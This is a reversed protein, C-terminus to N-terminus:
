TRGTMIAEYDSPNLPLQPPFLRFQRLLGMLGATILSRPFIISEWTSQLPSLSKLHQCRQPYGTSIQPPVRIQPTYNRVMESCKGSLLLRYSILCLVPLVFCIVQFIILLQAIRSQWQNTSQSYHFVSSSIIVNTFFNREKSKTRGSRTRGQIMYPMALVIM